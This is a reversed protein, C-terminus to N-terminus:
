CARGVSSVIGRNILAYYLLLQRRVKFFFFFSCGKGSFKVLHSKLSYSHRGAIWVNRLLATSIIYMVGGNHIFDSMKVPKKM